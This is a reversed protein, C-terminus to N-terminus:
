VAKWWEAEVVGLGPVERAEDSYNAAVRTGDAFATAQVSRGALADRARRLRAQRRAPATAGGAAGARAGGEGRAYRPQLPLAGDGQVDRRRCLRVALRLADREAALGCARGAGGAAAALRRRAPFVSKGRAGQSRHHPNNYNDVEWWDHVLSDHYVLATMPVTYWDDHVPTAIKVSGIDYSPAATAGSAKRRCWSARKAARRSCRAGGSRTRAAPRASPGPTLVRDRQPQGHRRLAPRHIGEDARGTHPQLAGGAAGPVRSVVQVRRDALEFIAQGETGLMMDEPWGARGGDVDVRRQHLGVGRALPLHKRIDIAPRGGMKFGEVINGMVLPYVFARDFGMAKLRKFSAAYDLDEDQCYGIFCMLAGFLKELNPGRRSRRRGRSSTAARGQRVPPVGRLHRHANPEVFRLLVSRDYRLRGRPTRCDRAVRRTRGRSKQFWIRADHEHEVITLLAEREGVVAFFPMSFGGHGERHMISRRAAPAGTGSARTRRSPSPVSNAGQPRFAGPLAASTATTRAALLAIRVGDAGLEWRFAAQGAPGRRTVLLARDGLAEVSGASSDWARAFARGAPIRAPDLGYEVNDASSGDSLATGQTWQGSSAPRSTAFRSAHATM